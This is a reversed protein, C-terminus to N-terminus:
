FAIPKRTILSTTPKTKPREPPRTTDGGGDGGGLVQATNNLRAVKFKNLSLKQIKKM